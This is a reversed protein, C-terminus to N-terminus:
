RHYQSVIWRPGKSIIQLVQNQMGAKQGGQSQRINHLNPYHSRNEGREVAARAGNNGERNRHPAGDDSSNESSLESHQEGLDDLNRHMQLYPALRNALDQHTTHEGRRSKRSEGDYIVNRATTGMAIWSSISYAAPKHFSLTELMNQSGTAIIPWEFGFVHGFVKAVESPPQNNVYCGSGLHSIMAEMNKCLTKWTADLVQNYDSADEQMLGIPTIEPIGPLASTNALRIFDNGFSANQLPLVEDGPPRTSPQMPARRDANQEPATSEISTNDSSLSFQEKAAERLRHHLKEYCTGEFDAHRAALWPFNDSSNFFEPFKNSLLQLSPEEEVNKESLGCIESRPKSLINIATSISESPIAYIADLLVSFMSHHLINDALLRQLAFLFDDILAATCLPQDIDQARPWYKFILDYGFMKASQRFLEEYFRIYIYSPDFDNGNNAEKAEELAKQVAPIKAVSPLYCGSVVDENHVLPLNKFRASSRPQSVNPLLPKQALTCADQVHVM